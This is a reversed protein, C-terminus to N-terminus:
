RASRGGGSIKWRLNGSMRRRKGWPLHAELFGERPQGVEAAAAAGGNEGGTSGGSVGGAKIAMHSAHTAPAVGGEGGIGGNSVGAATALAEYPPPPASDAVEPAAAVQGGTIASETAAKLPRGGAATSAIELNTEVTVRAKDCPDANNGPGDVATTAAAATVSAAARGPASGDDDDNEPPTAAKDKGGEGGGAECGQGGGFGSDDDDDDDDDEDDVDDNEENCGNTRNGVRCSIVDGNAIENEDGNGDDNRIGSSKGIGDDNGITIDASDNGIGNGDINDNVNSGEHGRGGGGGGDDRWVLVGEADSEQVPSAAAAVPRSSSARTPSPSISRDRADAAATTM